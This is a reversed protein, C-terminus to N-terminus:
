TGTEGASVPINVPYPGMWDSLPVDYQTYFRYSRSTIEGSIDGSETLNYAVFRTEGRDMGIPYAPSSISIQAEADSTAKVPATGVLGVLLIFVFTLSSFFPKRASITIEEGLEQSVIRASM